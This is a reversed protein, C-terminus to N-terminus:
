FLGGSQEEGRRLYGRRMELRVDRLQSPSHHTTILHSTICLGPLCRDVEAFDVRGCGAAQLKM